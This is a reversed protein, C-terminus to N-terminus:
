ALAVVIVDGVNSGTPGTRILDSLKAFFCHSDNRRLYRHPNLGLTRARAVTTGDAIAGAADTPGDIGDTGLAAVVCGRAGELGIAAALALEQNRGGRGSGRLQVTTEGGLVWARPQRGRRFMVAARHARAALSKGVVRAEGELSTSILKATAGHRRLTGLAARCATGNNGVIVVHSRAFIRDNPKPTESVRGALGHLLLQRVRSSAGAWLSYARLVRIADAFTTPDPVTPGSAIVDPRDGVVDSLLLSVLRAPAALRALGGGKVESLHKRVTNLEGISAGAQLLAVIVHRKDALSLGARPRVVLASAGGSLLCLVVDQKQLGRVVATIADAAQLASEDPVPHPARLVRIRRLKPLPAGQPLVIIGDEIRSSLREECAQAMGGAAKGAGVICLRGIRSLHESWSGIELRSDRVRLTRRILRAPEIAHLAAELAALALTRAKRDEPTAARALLSPTRLIM